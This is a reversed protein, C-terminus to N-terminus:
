DEVNSLLGTLSDRYSSGTMSATECLCIVKGVRSKCAQNQDDKIQKCLSRVGLVVNHLCFERGGPITVDHFFVGFSFGTGLWTQRRRFSAVDTTTMVTATMVTAMCTTTMIATCGTWELMPRM